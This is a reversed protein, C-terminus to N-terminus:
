RVHGLGLPLNALRNGPGIEAGIDIGAAGDVRGVNAYDFLVQLLFMGYYFSESCRREIILRVNLRYSYTKGFEAGEPAPFGLLVGM